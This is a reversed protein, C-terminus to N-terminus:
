ESQRMFICKPNTCRQGQTIFKLTSMEFIHGCKAHKFKLKTQNNIYSDSLLIYENNTLEKVKDQIYKIGLRESDKKCYPCRQGENFKRPRVLYERNCTIHKIKIKTNNNVYEEGNCLEYENNGKIKIEEKFQETTKGKAM